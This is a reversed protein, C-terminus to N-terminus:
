LVEISTISRYLDLAIPKLSEGQHVIQVLVVHKESRLLLERSTNIFPQKAAAVARKVIYERGQTNWTAIPVRSGLLEAGSDKADQEYHAMVDRWLADPPDRREYVAFVYGNPSDYEIYHEGQANSADRIRWNKPRSIHVRGGLITYGEYEPYPVSAALDFPHYRDEFESTDVRGNFAYEYFTHNQFAIEDSTGGCGSLGALASAALACAVLRCPASQAFKWPSRLM